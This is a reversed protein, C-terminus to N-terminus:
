RLSRSTPTLPVRKVGILAKADCEMLPASSTMAIFLSGRKRAAHCACTALVTPGLSPSEVAREEKGSAMALATKASNPSACLPISRPSPHSANM